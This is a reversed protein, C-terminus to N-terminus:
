IEGFRERLDVPQGTRMSEYGAEVVALSRRESRGTTPGESVGAVYEAFAQLELAFGSLEVEPYAVQTGDEEDTFVRCSEEGARVSGRDGHLVYGRLDGYLKTEATQLLHVAVGSELTLLASVTAEVDARQFSTAKHERVYVTRVEGLVYRLQGVTHIGHLTWTGTGGRAPDGLWSRRGPYGYDPGRFGATVSGATPEGIWRGERVVERLFRAMPSYAASEAVYLKVENADAAALMRTAEAVTVAMPKEVLVHKGAEAAQVAQPCHLAHPTCLSVADTESDGLVAAVDTSTREVGLEASKAALFDADVDVLCVVEVAEPVERAGLVHHEGAWGAGVIAVRLM